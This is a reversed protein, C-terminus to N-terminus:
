RRLAKVNTVGPAAGAGGGFNFGLLLSIAYPKASFTKSPRIM